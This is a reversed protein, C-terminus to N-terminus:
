KNTSDLLAYPGVFEDEDDAAQTYQTFPDELLDDSTDFRARTEYDSGAGSDTLALITSEQVTRIEALRSRVQDLNGASGLRDFGSLTEQQQEVMAIIHDNREIADIERDLQWLQARYTEHEHEIKELISVLRVRQEGMLEM